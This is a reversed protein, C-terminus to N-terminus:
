SVPEYTAEFIDPKCPYFEGQIGRIIWDGETAVHIARRDTGDELTTIDVEWKAAPHDPKRFDRMVHGCFALLEASPPYTFRMAEVVVPKKVYKGM